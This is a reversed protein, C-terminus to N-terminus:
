FKNLEQNLSKPYLTDLKQIWFNERQLLRERITAKDLNTNNLRDIITFKLHENFRHGNKSSLKAVLKVKRDKVDKTCNNLRINYLAENKGVFQANCLNCNWLCIAYEIQCNKNYFIKWIKNTQQSKFLITTEM